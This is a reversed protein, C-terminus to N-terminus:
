KGARKQKFRKAIGKRHADCESTKYLPCWPCLASPKPIPNECNRIEDSARKIDDESQKADMKSMIVRQVQHRLVWFSVTVDGTIVPFLRRAGINYIKAQWNDCLKATDFARKQTKLDKIDATDAWQDLRDILGAVKTGDSLEFDFRIEVGVINKVSRFYGWDLANQSLKRMLPIHEPLVGYEAIADNEYDFPSKSGDETGIVANTANEFMLHVGSGMNTLPHIEGKKGLEYEGYYKLPCQEFTTRRSASFHEMKM